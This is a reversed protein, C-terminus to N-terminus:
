KVLADMGTGQHGPCYGTETSPRGCAAKTLLEDLAVHRGVAMSALAKRAREAKGADAKAKRTFDAVTLPSHGLPDVLAFTVPKADDGKGIKTTAVRLEFRPTPQEASWNHKIHLMLKVTNDKPDPVFM